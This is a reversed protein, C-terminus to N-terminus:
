DGIAIKELEEKGDDMVFNNKVDETKVGVADICWWHENVQAGRYHENEKFTFKGITITNKCLLNAM